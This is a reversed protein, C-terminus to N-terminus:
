DAPAVLLRDQLECSKCLLASTPEGCRECAGLPAAGSAASLLPKLAEQTRLLAHRTGPRAEELRYLVDRYVGRLAGEAYPCEEDHWRLGRVMAYLYAEAEPTTRLPLIRPVLGEKPEDHPAMKAMKELNASALNMLISQAVDDLNHGTVLGEAGVEKAFDNMLRRRFVGCYSCHGRGEDRAHVEDMTAGALDRVRRVHHEIGLARCSEAALALAPPRYSDIGEDITVALIELDPRSLSFDHLLHLAAMSDKGGSLAVALRAGRAFPGAESIERRARRDVLERFHRKCLRQSSYRLFTVSSDECRDCRPAPDPM